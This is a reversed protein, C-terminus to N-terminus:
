TSTCKHFPPEVGAHFGDLLHCETETTCYSDTLSPLSALYQSSSSSPPSSSTTPSTSPVIVSITNPQYPSHAGSEGGGVSGTHHIITSPSTASAEPGGGGSEPVPGSSSEHSSINPQILDMIDGTELKSPTPDNGWM